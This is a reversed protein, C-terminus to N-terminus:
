ESEDNGGSFWTSAAEFNDKGFVTIAAMLIIVGFLLFWPQTVASLSAGWLGFVAAGVIASFIILMISGIVLGVKRRLQKNTM